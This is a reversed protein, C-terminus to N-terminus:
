AAARRRRQVLADAGGEDGRRATPVTHESAARREGRVDGRERGRREGGPAGLRRRRRGRPGPRPRWLSGRAHDPADARQAAPAAAGCGGGARAAARISCAPSRLQRAADAAPSSPNCGGVLPSAAAVALAPAVPECDAAARAETQPRPTEPQPRLIRARCWCTRSHPRGRLLLLVRRRSSVLACTTEAERCTCRSSVQVRLVRLVDEKTSRDFMRGLSRM